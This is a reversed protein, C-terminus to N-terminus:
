AAENKTRRSRPQQSKVCCDPTHTNQNHYQICVEHETLLGPIDCGCMGVVTETTIFKTMIVLLLRAKTLSARGDLM